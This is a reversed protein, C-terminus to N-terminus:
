FPCLTSSESILADTMEILLGFDKNMVWVGKIVFSPEVECYTWDDPLKRAKKNEDWCKVGNRGALNMKARLHTYGKQSVKIAPNYREELQAQTLDQGFYRRPDSALTKLVWAELQQLYNQVADTSQFCIAVRSAEPDNFAKPEWQVRLPGPRWVLPEDHSQLPIQKAGKGSVVLEGLSLSNMQLPM